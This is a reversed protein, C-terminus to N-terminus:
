GRPSREAAPTLAASPEASRARAAENAAWFGALNRAHAFAYRGLGTLLTVEDDSLDPHWLDVVLVTRERDSDNWVEHEFSDDFVICRGPIWTRSEAAVRLGCNPPIDLGLHLRLRLNTPGAHPAVRTGPALRSFYILGGPGRVIRHSEVIRTTIPCRACNEALRRGREYLMLVDWSGIRSIPESEAHFADTLGRLEAAIQPAARELDRALAFRAADHWPRRTLGPYTGM